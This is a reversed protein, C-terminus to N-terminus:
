VEQELKKALLIFNNKLKTPTRELLYNLLLHDQNKSATLRIKEMENTAIQHRVQLLNNQM